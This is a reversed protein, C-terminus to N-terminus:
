RTYMINTLTLRRGSEGDREHWKMGRVSYRLCRCLRDSLRATSEIIEVSLGWIRIETMSFYLVVVLSGVSTSVVGHACVYHVVVTHCLLCKVDTVSLCPSQPDRHHDIRASSMVSIRDEQRSVQKILDLARHPLENAITCTRDILQM